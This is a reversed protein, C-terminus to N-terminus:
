DNQLHLTASRFEGSDGAGNDGFCVRWIGAQNGTIAGLDDVLLGDLAAGADPVYDCVFDEACVVQSTSLANGMDEASVTAAASGFRIPVDLDLNSSDGPSVASGDDATNDAGPTHLITVVPGAPPVVKIILDGIWSHTLAVTVDVDVVDAGAFTDVIIPVCAMSPDVFSGDYGDDLPDAAGYAVGLERVCTYLGAGEDSCDSTADGDPTGFLDADPPADGLDADPAAWGDEFLGDPIDPQDPETIDEIDGGGFIDGFDGGFLELPVDSPRVDPLDPLDAGGFVDSPFVDADPEPDGGTDTPADVADGTDDADGM